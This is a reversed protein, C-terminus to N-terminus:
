ISERDLRCAEVAGIVSSDHGLAATTVTVQELPIYFVHEALRTRLPALLADGALSLGGGLVVRGPALVHIISGIGIALHRVADLWIETALRDGARYGEVVEEARIKSLDGGVRRRLWAGEARDAAVRRRAEHAINTGSAMQELCGRNGCLCLPGDPDVTIHGLEGAGTRLGHVLRGDIIVGGGIGTSLTLYVFPLSRDIEGAAVAHRYEALAALNADNDILVPVGLRDSLIAGLPLDHWDPLHPFNIVVGREHDLPGGISVGLRGIPRRGVMEGAIELLREIVEPPRGESPVPEKRVRVGEAAAGEGIGVAVKTGGIDFGLLIEEEARIDRDM